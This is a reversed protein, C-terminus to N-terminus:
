ERRMGKERWFLSQKFIKVKGFGIEIESYRNENLIKQVTTRHAQSKVTKKEEIRESYENM